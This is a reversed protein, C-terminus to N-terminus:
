VSSGGRPLGKCLAETMVTRKSGPDPRTTADADQSPDTTMVLAKLSYSSAASLLPVPGKAPTSSSAPVTKNRRLVFTQFLVRDHLEEPPLKAYAEWSQSICKESKVASITALM